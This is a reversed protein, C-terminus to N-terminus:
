LSSDFSDPNKQPQTDILHYIAKDVKKIDTTPEFRSVVKGHRDILFKTFNWKIANDKEWGPNEKIQITALVKTMPHSAEFGKFGKKKKLFEYLNSQYPGNVDIKDFRPFTTHYNATCFTDIEEISEPAQGHFQNCPFDLIEFGEKKYRRYLSELEKYTDTFVCHIATNVILLVKGEYLALPTPHKDKDLVVIDYLTM